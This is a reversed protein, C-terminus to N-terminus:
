LEALKSQLLLQSRIKKAQDAYAQAKEPFGAAALHEAAKLLHDAADQIGKEIVASPVKGAAVYRDKSDQAALPVAMGLTLIILTLKRM